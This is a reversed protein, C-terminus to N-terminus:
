VPAQERAGNITESTDVDGGGVPIREAEAADMSPLRANSVEKSEKRRYGRQPCQENLQEKAPKGYQTRGVVPVQSEECNRDSSPEPM